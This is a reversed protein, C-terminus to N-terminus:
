FNYELSFIHLTGGKAKGTVKEGEVERETFKETDEKKVQPIQQVINYGLIFNKKIEKKVGLSLTHLIGHMNLDQQTKNSEILGLFFKQAGDFNANINFVMLHYNVSFSIKKISTSYALKYKSFDLATDYHLLYYGGIFGFFSGVIDITAAGKLKGQYKEFGFTMKNKKLGLGYFKYHSNSLHTGLTPFGNYYFKDLSEGKGTQYFIFFPVKKIESSFITEYSKGKNEIPFYFNDDSDSLRLSLPVNFSNEQYTLSYNKYTLGYHQGEKEEGARLNIKTDASFLSINKIIEKSAGEGDSSSKAKFYGLSINKYSAALSLTNGDGNFNITTDEIDENTFVHQKSSFADFGFAFNVKKYKGPYLLALKNKYSYILNKVEGKRELKFIDEYEYSYVLKRKKGNLLLAPRTLDFDNESFNDPLSHSANTGTPSLLRLLSAHSEGKQFLFAFVFLPALLGGFKRYVAFM